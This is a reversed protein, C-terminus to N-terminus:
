PSLPRVGPLAGAPEKAGSAKPRGPTNRQSVHWPLALRETWEVAYFLVTGLIGLVVLAAFM